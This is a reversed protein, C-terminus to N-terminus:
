GRSIVKEIVNCINHEMVDATYNNEFKLRSRQGLETRLSPNTLLIGIKKVLASKNNKEVVFGTKGDDVIDSIAGEDTSVVPLSFEMAELLVLPFAEFNTPLVFIDADRFYQYKAAGYIAGM